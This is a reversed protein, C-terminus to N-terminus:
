ASSPMRSTVVHSSNLRTSKRDLALDVVGGGRLFALADAASSASTTDIAWAELSHELISRNTANDDVIMARLGELSATSRKARAPASSIEFGVTFWFTSGVGPESRVGIRGGMLEVLQKSIALGLGTGGHTRTTSADGQSFSRFLRRQGDPSIGMGTDRVDVRLM